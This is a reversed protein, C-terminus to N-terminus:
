KPISKITSVSCSHQVITEICSVSHHMRTVSRRRSIDYNLRDTKWIPMDFQFPVIEKGEEEVDTAQSVTILDDMNGVSDTIQQQLRM